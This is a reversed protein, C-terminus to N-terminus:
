RANLINPVRQKTLGGEPRRCMLLRGSNWILMKPTEGLAPHRGCGGGTACGLEQLWQHCADWTRLGPHDEQRLWGSPAQKGCVQSQFPPLSLSAPPPCRDSGEHRPNVRARAGHPAMTVRWIPWPVHFGPTSCGHGRASGPSCTLLAGSARFAPSKNEDTASTYRDCLMVSTESRIRAVYHNCRARRAFATM